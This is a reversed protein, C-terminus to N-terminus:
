VLELRWQWLPLPLVDAGVDSVREPGFLLKALQSRSLACEGQSGSVWFKGDKESISLGGCGYACLIAAPDLVHLMALYDVAFHIGLRDLADVVAHRWNPTVVM